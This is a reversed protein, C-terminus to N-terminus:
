FQSLIRVAEEYGKDLQGWSADMRERRAGWAEDSARGLARLKRRTNRQLDSPEQLLIEHEARRDAAVQALKAKLNEIGALRHDLRAKMEAEYGRREADDLDM